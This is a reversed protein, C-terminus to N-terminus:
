VEGRLARLVPHNTSQIIRDRFCLKLLEKLSLDPWEPEPLQGQAALTDYMGATINSVLRIWKVEALAAAALASQNWDNSRGDAGPLKAPWLAVDGQRNVTVFLCLPIIEGGLENWLQKNVLYMERNVRDEFAATQLRWDEGPRVRIFEHRNPKRCPVTTLVKKVGATAAFDQSLRLAAPNFPDPPPEDAAGTAIRIPPLKGGDGADVPRTSADARPATLLSTTPAPIPYIIPPCLTKEKRSFPPIMPFPRGLWAALKTNPTVTLRTWCARRVDHGKLEDAQRAALLLPEPNERFAM